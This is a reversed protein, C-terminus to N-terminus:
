FKYNLGAKISHNKLNNRQEVGNVRSKVDNFRQFDYEAKVSLPGSLAQEVGAGVLAGGEWGPASTTNDKAKFRTVGYGATGYVLTKDFAYGVKGKANGNWSQQLSGGNGIRHEAEAFNGELEGGFVVNGSQMNKGVVVGGLAGTRNTFPGPVRSSSAGVQAGIYNGSWDHPGAAVPDNYSYDTAGMMDAAFASGAFAVIAAGLAVATISRKLM